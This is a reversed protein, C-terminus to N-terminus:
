RQAKTPTPRTPTIPRAGLVPSGRAVAELEAPRLVRISRYSQSVLGAAEFQRLIQLLTTRSVNVLQALEDQTVAAEAREPSSRRPPLLGAVRLLGCACRREKEPILSDAYATATIAVAELMALAFIRWWEPRAALVEYATRQPVVAVTSQVRATVTLPPTGGSVLAGHGVWLGEHLLHLLPNDGIGFRSFVEVTGDAIGYLDSHTDSMRYIAQGPSYSRWECRALLADQFEAPARGFWAQSQKLIRQREEIPMQDDM